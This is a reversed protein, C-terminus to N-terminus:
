YAGSPRVVAGITQVLLRADTTPTWGHVYGLDVDLGADWDLDSRGGVQWPGTLGPLVTLRQRARSCYQSVERPLAPRPGVLSMDGRLVNVLQPLEDLSHRRLVRGVRTVRPDVRLKFLPGDADNAEPMIAVARDSDAMSRFKLMEFTRGDLGCREQRYLVPGRSDLRVALAVLALAPALTTLAAVAGVVDIARKARRAAARRVPPAAPAVDPGHADGQHHRNPRGPVSSTVRAGAPASLPRTTITM